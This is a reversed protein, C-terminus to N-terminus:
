QSYYGRSIIYLMILKSIVETTLLVFCFIQYEKYKIKYDPLRKIDIKVGSICHPHGLAPDDLFFNSMTNEVAEDKVNMEVPRHRTGGQRGAWTLFFESDRRPMLSYNVMGKVAATRQALRAQLDAVTGVARNWAFIELKTWMVILREPSFPHSHAYIASNRKGM